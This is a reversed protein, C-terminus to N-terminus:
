ELAVDGGVITGYGIVRWRQRVQRSVVIRAGREASVARRLSVSIVDKKAKTVLGWTTASGVNIMLAEKPKVPEMKERQVLRELPKFEFELATWVPPLAGPRGCGSGALADAKALAPDLETMIGVLGGPRAEEVQVNGYAISVVRSVLPQYM